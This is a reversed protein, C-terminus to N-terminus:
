TGGNNNVDVSTSSAATKRRWEQVISNLVGMIVPKESAWDQLSKCWYTPSGWHDQIKAGVASQLIEWASGAAEVARPQFGIGVKGQRKEDLYLNIYARASPTGRETREALHFTYSSRGPWGSVGLASAIDVRLADFLGRSGVSDVLSLLIATNSARSYSNPRSKEDTAAVEEHRALYTCGNQCFAHFTILSIDFGGNSLFEVMRRARDDVGLGVLMMRPRRNLADADGGFQSEYWETFNNIQPIGAAGSRRQIHESLEELPLEHLYSAYDVVQAIADRTLTGRKLEFVVLGGEDDIGLLDLPGGETPTQRGVLQLDKMLLGPASVIIEELDAETDTHNLGDLDNVNFTGDANKAVSWFKITRVM